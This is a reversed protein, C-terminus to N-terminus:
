RAILSSVCETVAVAANWADDKTNYESFSIRISSRAQDPTLGMAILVHSPESELSRCASGASVFIGMNDLLLILTEADIGDLRINLIKGSETVPRGNVHLIDSLGANELGDHLTTYFLQKLLSTHFSAERVRENTLLGCATGFGIIGAVNETGGRYGYEQETGGIIIPTIISLDRVYLAGAGKPGHIKHSSISLLDCGIKNVDIPLSGAAQVADTHFMIGMDSCIKGIKDVPNVTGTENNVYMVSVFKTNPKIESLLTNPEIMGYRNAALVSLDFKRVNSLARITKLVSDHEISSVIIHPTEEDCNIFSHCVGSNIALNNAETGSSTFLISGGNEAGVFNAVSARSKSIADRTSRGKSYFSGPNWFEDRLYPMMNNLVKNDIRTTAANDLYIM